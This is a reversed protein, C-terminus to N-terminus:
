CDYWNRIISKYQVVVADKFEIDTNTVVYFTYESCDAISKINNIITTPCVDVAYYLMSNGKNIYKPITKTLESDIFHDRVAPRLNEPIDMNLKNILVYTGRMVSSIFDHLISDDIIDSVVVVKNKIM